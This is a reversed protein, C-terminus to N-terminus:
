AFAPMVKEAFLRLTEVGRTDPHISVESLFFVFYTVGLDIVEHIQAMCEQPTGRIALKQMNGFLAFRKQAERM